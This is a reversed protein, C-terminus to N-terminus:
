REDGVRDALHGLRQDACAGVLHLGPQLRERLGARCALEAGLRIAHAALGRGRASPAVFIGLDARDDTIGHFSVEGVLRGDHDCVAFHLSATPVSRAVEQLYSTRHVETWGNAAMAEDDITSASADVMSSSAITSALADADDPRVRRLSVVPGAVEEDFREAVPPLDPGAVIWAGRAAGLVAGSVLCVLPPWGTAAVLVVAAVLGIAGWGAVFGATPGPLM